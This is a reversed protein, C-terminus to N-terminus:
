HHGMGKESPDFHLYWKQCFTGFLCGECRPQIPLCHGGDEKSGIWVMPVEIRSPDQPFASKSFAQIRLDGLSSRGHFFDFHPDAVGLRCAVRYLNEDISVVMRSFDIKVKGPILGSIWRVARRSSKESMHPIVQILRQIESAGWKEKELIGRTVQQLKPIARHFLDRWQEGSFLRTGELLPIEGLTVQPNPVLQFVHRTNELVKEPENIQDFRAHILITLLSHFSDNFENKDQRGQFWIPFPDPHDQYYAEISNKFEDMWPFSTEEEKEETNSSIEDILRSAVEFASADLPSTRLVHSPSSIPSITEPDVKLTPKELFSELSKTIEELPQEIQALTVEPKPPQLDFPPPEKPAEFLIPHPSKTLDISMVTEDGEDGENWEVNIWDPTTRRDLAAMPNGSADKFGISIKQVPLDGEFLAKFPSTEGPPLRNLALPVEEFTLFEEFNSFLQILVWIDRLTETSINKVRGVITWAGSQIRRLYSSELVLGHIGLNQFELLIPPVDKKVEVSVKAGFSKLVKALSEAKKRSINKKLVIPCQDVIKKLLPHPIGYNESLQRCFFEKEELTNEGIGILIVRYEEQYPNLLMRKESGSDM